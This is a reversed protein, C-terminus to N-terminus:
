RNNKADYKGKANGTGVLMGKLEVDPVGLAKTLKELDIQSNLAMDIDPTTMGNMKLETKLYNEIKKDDNVRSGFDFASNRYFAVDWTNAPQTVTNNTSLDFFVRNQYSGGMSMNVTTYGNGDVQALITQQVTLAFLSGLLLKTKM